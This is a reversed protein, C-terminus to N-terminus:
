DPQAQRSNYKRQVSLVGEAAEITKMVKDLHKLDSVEVTM